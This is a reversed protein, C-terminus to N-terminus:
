RTPILLILLIFMSLALHRRQYCRSGQYSIFLFMKLHEMGSSSTKHCQIHDQDQQTRQRTIAVGNEKSGLRMIRKPKSGSSEREAWVICGSLQFSSLHFLLPSYLALGLRQPSVTGDSALTLDAFLAPKRKPVSFHCLSLWVLRASTLRDFILKIINLPMPIDCVIYRIDDHFQAM